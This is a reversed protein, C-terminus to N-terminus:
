TSGVAKWASAVSVVSDEVLRHLGALALAVATESSSYNHVLDSIAPVVDVGHQGGQTDCVKYVAAARALLAGEPWPGERTVNREVIMGLLKPFMRPYAEVLRHMLDIATGLMAPTNAVLSITNCAAAATVRDLACAPLARLLQLHVVADQEREMCYVCFTFVSLPDAGGRQVLQRLGDLAVLRTQSDTAAAAAAAFIHLVARIVASSSLRGREVEAAVRQLWAVGRASDGCIWELTERAAM